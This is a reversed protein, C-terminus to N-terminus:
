NIYIESVLAAKKGVLERGVRSANAHPLRKVLVREGMGNQERLQFRQTYRQRMEIEVETLFVLARRNGPLTVPDARVFRIKDDLDVVTIDAADADSVFYYKWMSTRASFRLYYDLGLPPAANGALHDTLGVAVVFGPKMLSDRRDLHQALPSPIGIKQLDSADVYDGAHMCWRGADDARSRESSFYLLADADRSAPATYQTFYPDDPFFKFALLPAEDTAASTLLLELRSEECFVAIGSKFPRTLLDRRRILEASAPTAVCRFIVPAVGDYFAHEIDISFLQVYNPM